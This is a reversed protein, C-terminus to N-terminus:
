GAAREPPSTTPEIDHDELWERMAERVREDRFRFWREREGPAGALVDKFRRFVGRGRLAIELRDRLRANTVSAAFEAMWGYEVSTGLPEIRVLYGDVLGADAEDESLEFDDADGALASLRYQRVEGTRLDLFYEMEDSRWTLAMELDDWNVPVSRRRSRQEADDAPQSDALRALIRERAAADFEHGYFRLFLAQRLAAPSVAPDRELISAVVLARAAAYMSDGMRLREEGSRALLMARYKEEMEPPTDRM